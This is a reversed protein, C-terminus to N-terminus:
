GETSAPEGAEKAAKDAEREAERDWSRLWLGFTEKFTENMPDFTERSYTSAKMRVLSSRLQYIDQAKLGSLDPDRKDALRVLYTSTGAMSPGPSAVMNDDLMYLDRQNRLHRGVDTQQERDDNVAEGRGLYPRETITLGAAEVAAAFTAADVEVSNAKPATEEETEKPEEAALFADYMGQLTEQALKGANEDAWMDVVDERIDAFPPEQPQVKKHVYGFVMSDENVIVATSYSDVQLFGLQNASEISGWGAREQVQTRTLLNDPADFSLGLSEAEMRFEPYAFTEDARAKGTREKLDALFLGLAHFVQSDKTARDKVEEFSLYLDDSPEEGEGPEPRKYRTTTYRNYFSEAQADADWGEPLPYRDLLNTSDFEQGGDLFAVHPMVQDETFLKRQKWIPLAHYWETLAADDPVDAAAREKYSANEIEVVQFQFEPNREQWTSEVESPDAAMFVMSEVMSRFKTMRLGTRIELEIARTTTRFQDAVQRMRAGDWGGRVLRKTFEADSIEIGNDRALRDLVLMLAADEEEVSARPDNDRNLPRYFGLDALTNVTRMAKGMESAHVEVEEGGPPTWRMVVEDVGGGGGGGAVSSFLDGVTFILLVFLMLGLMMLYTLRSREKPVIVFDDEHGAAAVHVEPSHVKPDKSKSDKNKSM